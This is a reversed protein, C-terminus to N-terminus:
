ACVCARMCVGYYTSADMCVVYISTAYENSGKRSAQQTLTQVMDPRQPVHFKDTTDFHLVYLLEYMRVYM